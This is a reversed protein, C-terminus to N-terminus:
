ATAVAHTVFHLLSAAGSLAGMIRAHVDYVQSSPAGPMNGLPHPVGSSQSSAHRGLRPLLLLLLPM